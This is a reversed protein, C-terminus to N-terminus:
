GGAVPERAEPFVAEPFVVTADVGEDSEWADGRRRAALRAVPGAAAVIERDDLSLRRGGLLVLERPSSEAREFRLWAWEFDSTVRGARIPQGAGVLLLDRTGAEDDEVSFARGGAADIERVCVRSARPRRPILFTVFEQAGGAKVGFVFHPAPTRQGYCSSVWGAERRWAGGAAFASVELGADDASPERLAAAGGAGAEISPAADAAFQFHLEYRHPAASAVLDRLVWYDRKLWLVSRTHAVAGTPLREYGDHEGAFFTFRGADIWARARAAAASRWTFPGSPASSGEGDVTLTNHAASGRFHDRLEASGTYTYTGPDVLLTRGHAALEFALADAHAHGNSLAGHPGCDILFYNSSPQWGDRMVYYGGSPFARADGAPPAPELADFARAGAAGLLWVTEEALEGAVHKYDGRACLAAGTSLPARFDNSAREDLMVLRGGDDDGFLPSTGDPRTIWMLHDLLSALKQRLAGDPADGGVGALVLFHTYFDTAYRHYYSSQEFYVGDARVHRDLTARLIQRGRARWRAADLLEPLATGLYFLGLAEGSLHTNPSFYTSLYTELHRAHLYLFKLARLFVDPALARADRFFHLAWLWSIARFAVELSSAWNIGLKPPNQEMWATLHAVFTEAYTEDGTYWYARGLTMFYQHRNLEWTIKKDGVAEADLYPIRSWHRLPSRKRAVPELRWNIPEGFSLDRLGLLDFRGAVVRRAREVTAAEARAGFRRRLEAVTQAPDAFSAFFRAPARRRFHTLLGEASAPGSPFVGPALLGFFTADTPLRAMRSWGGREAWVAAQQAGRDVLEDLGRGRLKKLKRM